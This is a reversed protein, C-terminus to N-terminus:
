TFPTSFQGRSQRSPLWKLTLWRKGLFLLSFSSSSRGLPSPDSPRWFLNGKRLLSMPFPFLLFSQLFCNYSDTIINSTDSCQLFGWIKPTKKQKNNTPKPLCDFCQRTWGPSKRPPGFSQERYSVLAGTLFVKTYKQMEGVTSCGKERKKGWGM